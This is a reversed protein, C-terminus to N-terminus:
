VTVNDPDVCDHQRGHFKKVISVIANPKRVPLLKRSGQKAHWRLLTNIKIM